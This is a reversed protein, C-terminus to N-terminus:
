FKGKYHKFFNKYEIMQENSLIEEEFFDNVEEIEKQTYSNYIQEIEMSEEIIKQAIDINEEL